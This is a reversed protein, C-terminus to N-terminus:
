HYANKNLIADTIRNRLYILLDTKNELIDTIEKLDILIILESKILANNAAEKASATYGAASIYIGRAEARYHIRGLHAFIDRNSIPSNTWKMEVLFIKGDLEIVGDIQELIGDSESSIRKFDQKLLIGYFSFLSNLVSELKKGRVQPITEKFLAFLDNKIQDIKLNHQKIEDIKKDHEKVYKNREYDREQKMRTFSDKVNVIDRVLAVAGRAKLIDTPWCNDFLEFETVRKIVERRVKLAGDNDINIAELCQRAIDFKSISFKNTNVQGLLGDYISGQFGTGRFFTLVDKKSRNLLPITQVLLNFLDPSFHFSNDSNM